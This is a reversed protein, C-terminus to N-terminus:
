VVLNTRVAIHVLAQKHYTTHLKKYKLVFSALDVERKFLQTTLADSEEYNLICSSCLLDTPSTWENNQIKVQDLSLLFQRQADKDSLLKRLEDVIKDKLVAIIGAAEAPSVHLLSPGKLDKHVSAALLRPERYEDNIKNYIINIYIIISTQSVM